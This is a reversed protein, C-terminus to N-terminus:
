ECGGPETSILLSQGGMDRAKGAPIEDIKQADFFPVYVHNGANLASSIVSDFWFRAPKDPNKSSLHLKDHM